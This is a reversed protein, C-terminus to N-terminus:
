EESNVAWKEQIDENEDENTEAPEPPVVPEPAAPKPPEVIEPKDLIFEVRRNKWWNERDKFEVRVRTGGMGVPSLRSRDIGLNVLYEVVARAREESLPKLGKDGRYLGRIEEIPRQRSNPPVTPNAHGEVRVKYTGFYNLIEAIRRLIRDNSASTAPDLGKTLQVTNPAFIISPVIIRLLNEGEKIVVIDIALSGQCTTSGYINTVTLSYNYLTASEV